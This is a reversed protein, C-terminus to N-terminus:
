LDIFSNRSNEPLKGAINSKQIPNKGFLKGLGNMTWKLGLIKKTM